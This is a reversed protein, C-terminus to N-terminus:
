AAAATVDAFLITCRAGVSKDKKNIKYVARSKYQTKSICRRILARMDQFAEVDMNMVNIGTSLDCRVKEKLLIINWTNQERWIKDTKTKLPM